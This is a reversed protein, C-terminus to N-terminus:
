DKEAEPKDASAETDTVEDTAGDTTEADTEADTTEAEPAVEVFEPAQAIAEVELEPAEAADAALETTEPEPEPARSRRVREARRRQAVAAGRGTAEERRRRTELEDMAFRELVITVHSTRKRIRFYRGRARPQGHKRTPGEDAWALAVYLEDAPLANNHEANAIASGLLKLVDDAADKECLQLLREADGVPLGRVLTLVQRVKYPSTHLYRVTARVGSKEKTNAM